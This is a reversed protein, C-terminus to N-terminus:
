RFQDRDGLPIVELYPHGVLVEGANLHDVLRALEARKYDLVGASHCFDRITLEEVIRLKWVRVLEAPRQRPLHVLIIAM